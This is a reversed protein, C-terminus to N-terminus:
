LALVPFSKCSQSRSIHLNVAFITCARIGEVQANISPTLSIAQAALCSPISVRSQQAEKAASLRATAEQGGMRVNAHGPQFNAPEMTVALRGTVCAQQAHLEQGAETATVLARVKRLWQSGMVMASTQGHRQTAALTASGRMALPYIEIVVIPTQLASMQVHLESGSRSPSAHM